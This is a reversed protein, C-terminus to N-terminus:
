SAGGVTSEFAGIARDITSRNGADAAPAFIVGAPHHTSTMRVADIGEATLFRHLAVAERQPSTIILQM